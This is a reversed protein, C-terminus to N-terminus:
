AEEMAIILGFNEELDLHVTGELKIRDGLYTCVVTCGAVISNQQFGPHQKHV